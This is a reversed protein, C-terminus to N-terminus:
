RWERALLAYIVEDVWEGHLRLSERFYAEQRMGLSRLLAVSALNRPDISAHVRHARLQGFVWGLWACLAERSYGQSQCAPAISIGFEYSDGSDAPIHLGVDGILRDDTTRRIARQLWSDRSDLSVQQQARIFALAEECTAPYWGQYRAVVPDSRYAFLAEADSEHLAVLCLRATTLEM